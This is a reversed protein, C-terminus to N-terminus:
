RMMIVRIRSASDSLAMGTTVGVGVQGLSQLRHKMISAFILRWVVIRADKSM